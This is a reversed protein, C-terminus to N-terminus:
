FDDGIVFLNLDSLLWFVFGCLLSLGITLRWNLGSDQTRSANPNAALRYIWAQLLLQDTAEAHLLQIAETFKETQGNKRADQYLQELVQPNQEYPRLTDVYAM